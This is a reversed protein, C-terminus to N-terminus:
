ALAQHGNLNFGVQPSALPVPKGKFQNSFSSAMPIELLEALIDLSRPCANPIYRLTLRMKTLIQEHSLVGFTGTANVLELFKELTTHDVEPINNIAFFVTESVYLKKIGASHRTKSNSM